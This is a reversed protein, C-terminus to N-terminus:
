VKKKCLYLFTTFNDTRDEINRDLVKLGYKEMGYESGIAAVDLLQGEMIEKMGQATSGIEKLLISSFNALLYKRCEGLATNRSRIERIKNRTSEPHIGLALDIKLDLSGKQILGYRRLGEVSEPYIGEISNILPVVIGQVNGMELESFMGSLAPPLAVLRIERERQTFLEAAEGCYTGKPGLYGVDIM